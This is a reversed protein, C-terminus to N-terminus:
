RDSPNSDAALPPGAPGIAVVPVGDGDAIRLLEERDLIITCHAEFALAMVKAELMVRLTDPGITPLDFRPDQGPKAVKILSAGGSGLAGGRRVAADTGEIAEVALVARSEVVVSQGIDMSGLAKAVPWAFAIDELQAQSPSTRGMVGPEAVLDPCFAIQPLLEVGEESLARAIADLISDDRLDGIGAILELARQDPRLKALDGYLHLKSVKGAMVAESVQERDFEGLLKSLQGLSLWAFSDVQKELAPDTIGRYGVACVRRGMAQASRAVEFPLRGDGAILGLCSQSGEM